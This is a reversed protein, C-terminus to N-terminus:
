PRVRDRALPETAVGSDWQGWDSGEELEEGTPDDASARELADADDVLSVLSLLDDEGDLMVLSARSWCGDEDPLWAMACPSTDLFARTLIVGPSREWIAALQSALGASGEGDADPCEVDASVISMVADLDRANFGDVLEDRLTELDDRGGPAPEKLVDQELNLEEEGAEVYRLGEELPM